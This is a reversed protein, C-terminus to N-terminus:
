QTTIAFYLVYKPIQSHRHHQFSIFHIFSVHAWGFWTHNCYSIVQDGQQQYLSFAFYKRHNLVVEFGQNYIITWFGVNGQDDTAVNPFDLHVM